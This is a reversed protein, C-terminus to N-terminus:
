ECLFKVDYCCKGHTSRPGGYTNAGSICMRDYVEALSPCGARTATTRDHVIHRGSALLGGQKGGRVNFGDGRSLATPSWRAVSQRRITEAGLGLDWRQGAWAQRGGDWLLPGAVLWLIVLKLGTSSPTLRVRPACGRDGDAGLRRASAKRRADGAPPSVSLPHGAVSRGKSQVSISEVAERDECAMM